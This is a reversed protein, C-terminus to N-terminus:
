KAKGQAKVADTKRRIEEPDGLYYDRILKDRDTFEFVYPIGTPINLSAIEDDSINKILKVVARLSNGHAVVLVQSDPKTKKIIEETWYPVVRIFTDQLSETRPLEHRPVTRYRIDFIPNRPDDETLPPPAVTYSRRWLQVQDEGYKAATEAKNLGQLMGYHKENLHWSKEVPLWDQNMEDLVIDLTKIARKLLSTYARDFIFGNEVLSKGAQSAEKKGNESLDVDTWGTFLNEKNWISEGHRLLVITKM